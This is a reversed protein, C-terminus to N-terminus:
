KPLYHRQHKQVLDYKGGHLPHYQDPYHLDMDQFLASKKQKVTKEYVRGGFVSSGFVTCKETYCLVPEHSLRLAPKIKDNVKGEAYSIFSFM